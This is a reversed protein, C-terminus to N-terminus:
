NPRFVVGVPAKFLGPNTRLDVPGPQSVQSQIYTSGPEQPHRRMKHLYVSGLELFGMKSRVVCSFCPDNQHNFIVALLASVRGSTM